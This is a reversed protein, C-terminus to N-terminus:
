RLQVQYVPLLSPSSTKVLSTIKSKEWAWLVLNWAPAGGQAALLRGDSSFDLSVVEQEGGWSSTASVSKQGARKVTASHTNWVQQRFISVRAGSLVAWQWAHRSRFM